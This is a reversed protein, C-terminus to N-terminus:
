NQVIKKIAMLIDDYDPEETTEKVYQIYRIKGQSDIVFVTRALLRLEKILVGFANGFSGDKYDSLVRVNKTATEECWRKQAFPLDMSITVMKIDPGLRKAESNFRVTELHCVQTDLSPVSAIVVIKGKFSSLKIPKLAHDLVTCDPAVDGVKLENGVLTLPNGQMLVVGTREAM